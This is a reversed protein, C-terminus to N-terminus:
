SNSGIKKIRKKKRSERRLVPASQTLLPVVIAIFLNESQDADLSQSCVSGEQSDWLSNQRKEEETTPKMDVLIYYVYYFLVPQWM